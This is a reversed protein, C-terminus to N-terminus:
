GNSGAVVTLRARRVLRESDTILISKHSMRIWGRQTFDNLIVNVTERAAGILQGIEEQTLGHDVRIGENQRVGFQKGLRLLQSAARGAVDAFVLDSMAQDARRLRRALVRLLREGIEAHESVWGRLVEGDIAVATVDTLATATSTQPGPDFVSLAGFMEPAGMLALLHLRGDAGRRSLKIKGSAIVYLRDGSGGEAYIAQQRRYRVRHLQRSVDAIESPEAKHFLGARAVIEHATSSEPRAVSIAPM